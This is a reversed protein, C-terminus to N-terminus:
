FKAVLAMATATDTKKFGPVPVNDYLLTWSAKLSLMSTLTATVAAKENVIWNRSESLDELFSIDNTFDASKSFAWKYGLGARANAYNRDEGVVQREHTYGFAAEGRLMHVPGLLIKYGAGGDGGVLGRIGAFRNRLYNADVFVDVRPTLDRAGRLGGNFMEATTVNDTSSRLYALKLTFLWPTPKYNLELGSGLSSTTTNGSTALYSLEAKGAWLPQPAPPTESPPAPAQALAASAM